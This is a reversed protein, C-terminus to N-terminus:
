KKLNEQAKTRLANALEKQKPTTPRVVLEPTDKPPEIIQDLSAGQMLLVVNKYVEPNPWPVQFRTGVPNRHDSGYRVKETFPDPWYDYGASSVSDEPIRRGDIGFSDLYTNIAKYNNSM